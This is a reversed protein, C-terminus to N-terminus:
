DPPSPAGGSLGGDASEDLPRDDEGQGTGGGTHPADPQRSPNDTQEETTPDADSGVGSARGDQGPDPVDQPMTM